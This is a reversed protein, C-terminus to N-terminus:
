IGLKGKVAGMVLNRKQRQVFKSAETAWTQSADELKSVGDSLTGLNETREQIQRQMYGWYGEQQGGQSTVAGPAQSAQVQALMRKSPLRDPGGVAVVNAYYSHHM